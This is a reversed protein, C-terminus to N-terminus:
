HDIDTSAETVIGKAKKAAVEARLDEMFSERQLEMMEQDQPPLGSIDKQFCEFMFRKKELESHLKLESIHAQLLKNKDELARAICFQAETHVKRRSKADEKKKAQKM